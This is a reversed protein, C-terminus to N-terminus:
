DIYSRGITTGENKRYEHIAEKLLKEARKNM